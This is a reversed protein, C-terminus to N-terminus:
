THPCEPEISEGKALPKLPRAGKGLLLEAAEFHGAELALDLPLKNKANKTEIADKTVRGYKHLDLVLGLKAVDGSAAALHLATNGSAESKGCLSAARERGSKRNLLFGVTDVSGKRIAYHLISREDAYDSFTDALSKHGVLLEMRRVNSTDIAKRLVEFPMELRKQLSFKLLWSVAAEDDNDLAFELCPGLDPLVRDNTVLACKLMDHAIDYKGSSLAAGFASTQLDHGFPNVGTSQLRFVVRGAGAHVAWRMLDERAIVFDLHEKGAKEVAAWDDNAVAALVRDRVVQQEGPLAQWQPMSVDGAQHAM